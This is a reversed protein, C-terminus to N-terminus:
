QGVQIAMGVLGPGTHVGLVPSISGIYIKTMAPLRQKLSAVIKQLLPKNDGEAVAIRTNPHAKVQAVALDIMKAIAKPESRAKFLPYYIGDPNCSIVPKIRLISGLLGAVKGIRGGAQLYKLTPIYFYIRSPAVGAQLRAVITAYPLQQDILEQAYVAFLGSGIGINKTDIITTQLSNVNDAAQCFVNYAASLGSSITIGIVNTYGHAALDELATQVAGLGPCASKPLEPATQLKRYFQDPTIDVSDRYIKDGFAITEPVIAINKHKALTEKPVDSASDVLLAIKETMILGGKM